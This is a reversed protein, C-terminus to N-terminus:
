QIASLIGRTRRGHDTITNAPCLLSLRFIGPRGTKNGHNRYEHRHRSRGVAASPGIRGPPTCPAQRQVPLVVVPQIGVAGRLMAALLVPALVLCVTAPVPLPTEKM